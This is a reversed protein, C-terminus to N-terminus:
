NIGSTYLLNPPHWLTEPSFPAEADETEDESAIIRDQDEHKAQNGESSIQTLM